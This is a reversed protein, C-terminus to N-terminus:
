IYVVFQYDLYRPVNISEVVKWSTKEAIFEPPQLGSVEAAKTYFQMKDPHQPACAHYIHGFAQKELLRITLGVADTQHILNVPALGNPIATKGAFFRGPNREPGILGSFRIITYASPQASMFVQEAELMVKGSSTDPRTESSENVAKNEDSFVSTSSILIVKAQGQAATDLIAKIKTPFDNLEASNRKPPICILLVDTDFFKKDAKIGEGTFNILYADIGEATLTELKEPTTTSGKVRYGKTILQKALAFGFWGCGLISVTKINM